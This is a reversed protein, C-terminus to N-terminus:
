KSNLYLIVNKVNNVIDPNGIEPYPYVSSVNIECLVYTDKGKEDKPGILFDLDWLLPLSFTDIKFIEQLESIWETEILHRLDRFSVKDKPYYYRPPAILPKNDKPELLATVYQHGWGIVQDLSLYCRIMGEPLREQYKQDILHSDNTFYQNMQSMFEDLDMKEVVSGRQAHLIAVKSEDDSLLKVKWVGLGGNGRYQKLVRSGSKLHNLFNEKFEDETRYIYTECGWSMNQTDYLVDKTGLKLIIDPHTSVYIGEQSVKRLMKDLISRDRGNQIPNVWVMVLKVSRIEEEVQDVRDDSYLILKTSINYNKFENFLIAVRSTEPKFDGIKGPLLLGVQIKEIEAM